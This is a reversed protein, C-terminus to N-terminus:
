KWNKTKEKLIPIINQFDDVIGYDAVSFIPAHVGQPHTAMLVGALRSM